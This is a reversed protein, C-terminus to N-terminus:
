IQFSVPSRLQRVRHDTGELDICQKGFRIANAEVIPGEISRRHSYMEPESVLAFNPVVDACRHLLSSLDNISGYSNGVDWIRSSRFKFKERVTQDWSFPGLDHVDPVEFYPRWTSCTPALTGQRCWSCFGARDRLRVLSGFERGQSKSVQWAKSLFVEIARVAGNNPRPVIAESHKRDKRALRQFLGLRSRRGIVVVVSRSGARRPAVGNEVGDRGSWRHRGTSRRSRRSCLMSATLMM